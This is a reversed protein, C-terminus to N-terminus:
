GGTFWRSSQTFGLALTRTKEPQTCRHRSSDSTITKVAATAIPVTKITLAAVYSTSSINRPSLQASSKGPGVGKPISPRWGQCGDTGM